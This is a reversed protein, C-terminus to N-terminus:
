GDPPPKKLYNMRVKTTIQLRIIIIHIQLVAPFHATQGPFVIPGRRGHTRHLGPRFAKQM